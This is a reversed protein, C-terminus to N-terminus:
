PLRHAAGLLRVEALLAGDVAIGERAARQRLEARRSGPLRAGDQGIELAVAEIRTAFVDPGAFAAPDICLLFQGVAPPPGKDDLFSSAEFGFQAGTLAVALLEVMLALASGKAGGIPLLTGALAARADTTPRGDADVAWGEPIPEGKNAAAVIKARAAHTLAFDMVLPLQGRRPAAFALPNTGFIPKRGGYAAMTKPTNGCALALLGAAALKEVHHGAVGFHHSRVFGAAAIGNARAMETLAPIALDFAPFAFGHAVDVLLTGPRPRQLVPEARGDVKGARVQAAYSPVRWLGHGKQGDIEAATLARAVSRAHAPAVDAGTLAAEILVELEAVQLIVTQSM